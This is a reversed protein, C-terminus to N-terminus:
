VRYQELSLTYEEHIATLISEAQKLRRFAAELEERKRSITYLTIEKGEFKVAIKAQKNFTAILEKLKKDTKRM